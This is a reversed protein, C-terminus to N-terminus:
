NDASKNTAKSEKGPTTTPSNWASELPLTPLCRRFYTSTAMSQHSLKLTTWSDTTTRPGQALGTSASDNGWQPLQGTAASSRTWTLPEQKSAKSHKCMTLTISEEKAQYLIPYVPLSHYRYSNHSAWVGTSYKLPSTWYHTTQLSRPTPSCSNWQSELSATKWTANPNSSRITSRVHSHISAM